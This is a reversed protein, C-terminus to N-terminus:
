IMQGPFVPKGSRLYCHFGSKNQYFWGAKNRGIGPMVQRGWVKIQPIIYSGQPGYLGNGYTKTITM